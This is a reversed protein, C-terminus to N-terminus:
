YPQVDAANTRDLFTIFDSAAFGPDLHHFVLHRWRETLGLELNEVTTADVTGAFDDVKAYLQAQQFFGTGPIAMLTGLNALALGVRRTIQFFVGLQELGQVM